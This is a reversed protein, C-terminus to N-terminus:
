AIMLLLKILSKGNKLYVPATLPRTWTNARGENRCIRDKCSRPFNVNQFFISYKRITINPATFKNICNKMLSYNCVSVTLPTSLVGLELM